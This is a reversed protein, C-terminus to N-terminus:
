SPFGEDKMASRSQGRKRVFPNKQSRSVIGDLSVVIQASGIIESSILPKLVLLDTVICIKQIGFLNM